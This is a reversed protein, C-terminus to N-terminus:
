EITSYNTENFTDRMTLKLKQMRKTVKNKEASKSNRKRFNIKENLKVMHDLEQKSKKQIREKEVSRNYEKNYSLYNKMDQLKANSENSSLKRDTQKQKEDIKDVEKKVTEVVNKVSNFREEVETQLIDIKSDM